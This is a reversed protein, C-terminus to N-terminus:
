KAKNNDTGDYIFHKKHMNEISENMKFQEKENKM